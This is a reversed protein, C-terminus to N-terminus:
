ALRFGATTKANREEVSSSIVSVYVALTGMPTHDFELARAMSEPDPCDVFAEGTAGGETDKVLRIHGEGLACGQLGGARLGYAMCRDRSFFLSQSSFCRSPFLGSVVAM